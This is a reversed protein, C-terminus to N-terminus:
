KGFPPYGSNAATDEDIAKAAKDLSAKVDAGNVVDDVAQAFAATIAPYGPYAPRPVAVSALQASYLSLAGGPKFNASMNIATKTAPVAGDQDTLAVLNEPQMLFQLLAAAEKPHASSKPIGWCWSGMGTVQKTGFKPMPLLVLDDGLAKKHPTWMWHGVLSIAATRKGYFADDGDAAPVVWGNKVWTQLHTLADIAGQSNITGEAKWTTRNILDAGFSQIMPSLGYTYWEGKGYNLKLDLPHTIGPVKALKALADEFEALTWADDVGKPIRVGAKELDAKNAWLALGSDIQGLSYLKGDPAYTGQAIVSPLTDDLLAKPLLDNLPVIYGSWAYNAYNPGDFDLLDPLGGSIAAAQVQENYSKGALFALEATMDPHAANWADILKSTVIREGDSDGAHYWVKLLAAASASGALALTMGALVGGAILISKWKM